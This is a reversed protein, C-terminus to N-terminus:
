ISNYNKEFSFISLHGSMIANLVNKKEFKRNLDSVLGQIESNKKVMVFEIDTLEFGLMQNKLHPKKMMSYKKYDDYELKGSADKAFILKPIYNPVYRWDRDNFSFVKKGKKTTDIYHKFYIQLDSLDSFIEGLYKEIEKSNGSKLISEYLNL